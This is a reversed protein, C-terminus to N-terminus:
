FGFQDINDKRFIIPKGLIIQSGEISMSGLRGSDFSSQGAL